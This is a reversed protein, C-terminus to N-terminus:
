AWSVEDSESVSPEQGSERRKVRVNGKADMDIKVGIQRLEHTDSLVQNAELRRVTEANADNGEVANRIAVICWERLTFCAPALSTASLIVHLGTREIPLGNNTRGPTSKEDVAKVELVPIPIIRLLDQNYRCQYVINGILRVMMIATQQDQPSLMLERAKRGANDALARDLIRGLDKCCSSILSTERGIVSRADAVFGRKSGNINPGAHRALSQALIDCLDDIIRITCDEEGDYMDACQGQRLADARLRIEEVENALSLLIPVATRPDSATSSWGSVSSDTRGWLPHPRTTLAMGASKTLGGTEGPPSMTSHYDDVAQRICSVLVVQEPTISNTKGGASRLMKSLLGRSAIRELLLTIWETASDSVDEPSIPPILKPRSPSKREKEFASQMLVAKAPLISRLLGNLLVGDSAVEFGVDIPKESHHMEEDLLSDRVPKGMQRQKAAEHLEERRKKSRERRKMEEDLELLSERAELSTLLNHLAAAVAALVERDEPIDGLRGGVEAAHVKATNVVLDSWHILGDNDAIGRNAREKSGLILGAMRMEILDPNPSFPVDRLVIEAALPSDTVINCLLRAALVRVRQKGREISSVIEARKDDDIAAPMTVGEEPYHWSRDSNIIEVLPIQLGYHHRSAGHEGHEDELNDYSSSRSAFGRVTAEQLEQRFQRAIRYREVGDQEESSSSGDAARAPSKRGAEQADDIRPLVLCSMAFKLAAKAETTHAKIEALSSHEEIRDARKGCHRKAYLTVAATLPGLHSVFMNKVVNQGSAFDQFATKALKCSKRLSSWDVSSVIKNGHANNAFAISPPSPSVIVEEGGLHADDNTGGEDSSDYDIVLSGKSRSPAFLKRQEEFSMESAARGGVISERGSGRRDVVDGESKMRDEMAAIMEVLNGNDNISAALSECDARATSSSSSGLVSQPLSSSVNFRSTSTMSGLLNYSRSFSVSSSVSVSDQRDSVVVVKGGENRDHPNLEDIEDFLDCEDPTPTSDDDDPSINEPDSEAFVVSDFIADSDGRAAEEHQRPVVAGRSPQKTRSGGGVGDKGDEGGGGGGGAGKGGRRRRTRATSVSIKEPVFDPSPDM